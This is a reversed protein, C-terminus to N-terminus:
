AKQLMITAKRDWREPYRRVFRVVRRKSLIHKSTAILVTGRILGRLLANDAETSATISAYDVM